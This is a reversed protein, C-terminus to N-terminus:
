FIIWSFLFCRKHINKLNIFLIKTYCDVKLHKLYQFYSPPEIRQLWTPTMVNQVGKWHSNLTLPPEFNAAMNNQVGKKNSIVFWFTCLEINQLLLIKFVTRNKIPPGINQLLINFQLESISSFNLIDCKIKFGPEINLPMLINYIVGPTPNPWMSSPWTHKHTHPPPNNIGFNFPPAVTHTWNKCLFLGFWFLIM